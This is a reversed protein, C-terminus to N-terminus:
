AIIRENCYNPARANGPLRHGKNKKYFDFLGREACRLCHQEVGVISAVSNVDFLQVQFEFYDGDYNFLFKSFNSAPSRSFYNLLHNLLRAQVCQRNAMGVYVPLDGNYIVYVKNFSKGLKLIEKFKIKKIKKTM